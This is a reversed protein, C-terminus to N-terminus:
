SLINKKKRANDLMEEANELSAQSLETGSTMRAIEQLRAGYDIETISTFTKNDRIQKSIYFHADAMAAIQPLHTICIVQRFLAIRAIKEAMMQATKGGVGIDVEDFVMLGIDDKQATITKLALAIRSLEGGSVIKSLPKLSEGVNASFMIEIEDAGDETFNDHLNVEIHFQANAMSLSTLECIVKQSLKNASQQRLDHLAKAKVRLDAEVAQIKQELEALNADYNEIYDLEQKAKEGYALIDAITAGYKRRLKDIDAMRSQMNDLKQPNYDMSEGYDRIEEAGDQLQIYVEDITQYLKQMNENYQGLKELDSRIQALSSLVAYKGAEGETLLQYADQTLLSIKEANALTKIQAELTEDEGVTLKANEIENIQWNLMDLRQAMQQTNVKSKNLQAKLELWTHYVKSYENKAEKINEQAFDDVLALQKDSKLLAQNAHQGHIDVLLEGLKRLIAMTVHCNNIQITNRGSRTIQRTIILLNDELLIDNALVFAKVVPEDKVSFVAEVRLFDSDTRIADVNSRHGIVMGLAGLLISKGAGTEGTLINLGKDFEIEIHEILAFNWISLTKLM